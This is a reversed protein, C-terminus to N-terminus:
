DDQEEEDDGGGSGWDGGFHPAGGVCTVWLEYEGDGPNEEFHVELSNRAASYEPEDAHWGAHEIVSWQRQLTPGKCSATVSGPAQNWTASKVQASPPSTSGTSPSGGSPRGPSGSAGPGESPGTSPDQGPDTAGGSSPSSSPKRRQLPAGPGSTQVVQGPGSAVSPRSGGPITEGAVLEQGARSIVAWVMTAGVMVVALWAAAAVVFARRVRM